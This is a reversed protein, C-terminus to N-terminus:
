SRLRSPDVFVGDKWNQWDARPDDPDPEPKVVQQRAIEAEIQARSEAERAAREEPSEKALRAQM